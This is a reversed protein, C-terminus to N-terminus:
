VIDGYQQEYIEIDALIHEYIIDNREAFAKLKQIVDALAQFLTTGHGQIQMGDQTLIHMEEARFYMQIPTRKVLLATMGEITPEEVPELTGFNYEYVEVCKNTEPFNARGRVYRKKRSAAIILATLVNDGKGSFYPYNRLTNVCIGDGDCSHIDVANGDATLLKVLRREQNQM